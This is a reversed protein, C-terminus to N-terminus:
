YALYDGASNGMKECECVLCVCDRGLTQRVQGEERLYCAVWPVRPISVDLSRRLDEERQKQKKLALEMMMDFDQREYELEKLRCERAEQLTFPM